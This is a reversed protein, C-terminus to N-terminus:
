ATVTGPHHLPWAQKGVIPGTVDGRFQRFPELIAVDIVDVACGTMRLGLALDLPPVLRQLVAYQKLVVEQRAVEFGLDCGEDLVVIMAAVVLAEAIERRGVDVESAALGNQQLSFPDLLLGDFLPSQYVALM